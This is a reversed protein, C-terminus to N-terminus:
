QKLAAIRAGYIDINSYVPENELSRYKQLLESYEKSLREIQNKQMKDKGKDFLMEKALDKLYIDRTNRCLIDNILSDFSFERVECTTRFETNYENYAQNYYYERLHEKHIHIEFPCAGSMFSFDYFSVHFYDGDQVIGEFKINEM